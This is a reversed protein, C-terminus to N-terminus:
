QHSRLRTLVQDMKPYMSRDSHDGRWRDNIQQEIDSAEKVQDRDLYSSILSLRAESILLHDMLGADCEGSSIKLLRDEHADVDGM